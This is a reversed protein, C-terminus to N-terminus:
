QQQVVPQPLTYPQSSTQGSPACECPNSYTPPPYSYNSYYSRNFWGPRDCCGTISVMTLLGVLAVLRKM